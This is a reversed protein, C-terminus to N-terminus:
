SKYNEREVKVVKYGIAAVIISMIPSLLNFFCYPLYVFTSVGLVTSQTMGCTNWPVLVSTVTVADETSRSLLRREFGQRDYVDRFVNGTLLICLYQDAVALNFMLGSCVTAAVLSTRGRVMRVFLRTIGGVMGGASM